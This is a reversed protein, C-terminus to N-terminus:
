RLNGCRHRRRLALARLMNHALAFWLLVALAKQECACSLSCSARWANPCEAQSRQQYLAKRPESAM